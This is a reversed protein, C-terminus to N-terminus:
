HRMTCALQEPNDNSCGRWFHLGAYQQRPSVVCWQGACKASVVTGRAFWTVGVSNDDRVWVNGTITVVSNDPTPTNALSVVTTPVTTVTAVPTNDPTPPLTPLGVCSSMLVALVVAIALSLLLVIITRLTTSMVKDKAFIVLYFLVVLGIIFKEPTTM